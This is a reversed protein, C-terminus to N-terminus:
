ANISYGLVGGNADEIDKMLYTMLWAALAILVLKYIILATFIVLYPHSYYFVRLFSSQGNRRKKM